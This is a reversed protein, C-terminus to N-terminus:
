AQNIEIKEEKTKTFKTKKSKGPTQVIQKAKDIQKEMEYKDKRFRISSFSCILFGNPTKIRINKGDERIIAKDIKDIIENSLNALRAGVIYNINNTKLEEVNSSSIMAADAIVTFQRVKHKEIFAKIVPIITHGEFTNGAFIEYSIPFGEKSVMLAVLIQPQQSKNDKSFGNKRLEDEEFTEFYLTTVDYFLLDYSFDYEKKAFDVVKTEVEKKLKLWDPALKYFNQRRHKIGFYTELLEISHLKSAPEFLRIVVLDNMLDDGIDRFGIQQQLHAITQYFFTFYAGLFECHNIHLVSTSNEDSFISLQNSYDKDWQKAIETLEELEEDTHCSGFHKVIIRRNNEYRIVQVAKASSATNVVRIKM